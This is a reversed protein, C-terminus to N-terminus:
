IKVQNSLMNKSLNLIKVSKNSMMGYMIDIFLEDTLKIDELDLRIM